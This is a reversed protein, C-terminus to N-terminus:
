LDGEIESNKRLTILTSMVYSTNLTSFSVTGFVSFGQAWSPVPISFRQIASYISDNVPIWGL